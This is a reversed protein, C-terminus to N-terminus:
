LTPVFVQDEIKTDDPYHIKMYAAIRKKNENVYREASYFDAMWRLVVRRFIGSSYVEDCFDKWAAHMQDECARDLVEGGLALVFDCTNGECIHLKVTAGDRGIKGYCGECMERYSSRVTDDLLRALHKEFLLDMRVKDQKSRNKVCAIAWLKEDDDFTSM